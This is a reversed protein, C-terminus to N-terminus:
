FINFIIYLCAKLRMGFSRLIYSLLSDLVERHDGSYCVKINDYKKELEKVLEQEAENAAAQKALLVAAMNDM